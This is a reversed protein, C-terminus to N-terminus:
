ATHGIATLFGDPDDLSVILEDITATFPARAPVREVFRLQVLGSFSGNVVVKGNWGHVGQGWWWAIHDLREAAAMQQVSFTCSFAWGMRVTVTQGDIRVGSRSPGMGLMGGLIRMMRNFRIAFEM